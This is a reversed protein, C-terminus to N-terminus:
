LFIDNKLHHRFWSPYHSDQAGIMVLIVVVIVSLVILWGLDILVKQPHQPHRLSVYAVVDFDYDLCSSAVGGM